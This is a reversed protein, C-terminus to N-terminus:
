DKKPTAASVDITVPASQAGVVKGDKDYLVAGTAKNGGFFEVGSDKKGPISGMPFEGRVEDEIDRRWDAMSKETRALFEDESQQGKWTRAKPDKLLRVFELTTPMNPLTGPSLAMALGNVNVPEFTGNRYVEYNLDPFEHTWDTESPPRLWSCLIWRNHCPAGDPTYMGLWVREKKNKPHDWYQGAILRMEWVPVKVIVQNCPRSGIVTEGAPNLYSYAVERHEHAFINTIKGSCECTMDYRKEGRSDMMRMPHKLDGSWVWSFNPLGGLPAMGLEARLAQNCEDLQRKEKRTLSISSPHM